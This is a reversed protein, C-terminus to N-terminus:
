LEENKTIAFLGEHAHIKHASLGSTPDSGRRRDDLGRSKWDADRALGNERETWETPWSRSICEVSDSVPLIGDPPHEAASINAPVSLEPMATGGVMIDVHRALWTDLLSIQMWLLSNVPLKWGNGEEQKHNYREGWEKSLAGAQLVAFLQTLLPVPHIALNPDHDQSWIRSMRLTFESLNTSLWGRIGGFQCGYNNVTKYEDMVMIDDPAESIRHFIDRPAIAFGPLDMLTSFAERTARSVMSEEWGKITDHPFATAVGVNGCMAMLLAINPTPPNAWKGGFSLLSDGEAARLFEKLQMEQWINNQCERLVHKFISDLSNYGWSTIIMMCDGIYIMGDATECLIQAEQDSARRVAPQNNYAM